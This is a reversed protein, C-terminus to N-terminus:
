AGNRRRDNPLSRTWLSSWLNFWESPRWYMRYGPLNRYSGQRQRISGYGLWVSALDIKQRTASEAASRDAAAAASNGVLKSGDGLKYDKSRPKANRIQTDTLIM